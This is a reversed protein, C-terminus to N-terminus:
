TNRREFREAGDPNLMPVVHLTLRSLIRMVVPDQRRRQLYEFVDFLASTATSEDGHMQSWLLVPIPGTGTRVYNISRGEISEGIKEIAFADPSRKALGDLRRVLEAHDLLPSLPPSVHEADWIASLENAPVRQGSPVQTSVPPTGLSLVILLGGGARALRRLRQSMHTMPGM